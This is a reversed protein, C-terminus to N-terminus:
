HRKVTLTATKTVGAYSASIVPAASRKIATTTV